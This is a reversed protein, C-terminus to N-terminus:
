APVLLEDAPSTGPEQPVDAPSGNSTLAGPLYEAHRDLVELGDHVRRMVARSARHRRQHSRISDKGPASIGRAGLMAVIAAPSTGGDALDEILERWPHLCTRCRVDAVPLWADQLDLPGGRSPHLAAVDRNHRQGPASAV